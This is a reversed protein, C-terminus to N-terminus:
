AKRGNKATKLISHLSAKKKSADGQQAETMAEKVMSMVMAKVGDEDDSGEAAKSQKKLEEAVYSAVQKKMLKKNSSSKEDSQKKTDGRKQKKKSGKKDDPHKERYERLENKQEDSLTAYEDPPHYRFHVGTKGIGAKKGAETGGVQADAISAHGRKTGSQQRKKAVPDCPLLHAAAKEFDNRMGDAATDQKVSAIGAQLTADSCQIGELLYGVRSHGTPLQFTVHEACSQMMVYANRHQSVFSELTFNNQGKWVTTHVVQEQKKLEAEWKDKGAYQAVIALWAARGDKQRQFPKISAAYHTSRTAEEICHYVTANDDMFNPDDHSARAVLDGMVSGFETSHPKGQERAPCAAPVDVTERIVYSLPIYRVGIKRSLHDQFAEVWKMVQLTKSIKPVDLNDDKKKKLADWQKVFNKIIPQWMMCEPTPDRGITEYYRRLACAGMMRAESKASVPYMPADYSRGPQAVGNADVMPSGQTQKRVVQILAEMSDEEFDLFDQVTTLGEAVFKLRTPQGLAMQVADTFFADEEAQTWPM